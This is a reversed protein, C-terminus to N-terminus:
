IKYESNWEDNEILAQDLKWRHVAGPFRSANLSCTALHDVLINVYDERTMWPRLWGPNRQRFDPREILSTHLKPGIWAHMDIAEARLDKRQEDSLEVHSEVAAKLHKMFVAKTCFHKKM